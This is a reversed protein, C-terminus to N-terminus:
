KLPSFVVKGAKAPDIKNNIPRIRFSFRYDSPFLTYKSLPRAGWSDNGGVGTQMYDVNIDIFYNPILDTTHRFMNDTYDLQSTTFPLASVSVLPMGAIMIGDGSPNTLTMWRIDTRTGNEQPRVYPFYMESVDKDYIGIFSA